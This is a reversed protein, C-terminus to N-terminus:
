APSAPQGAIQREMDAAEAEIERCLAETDILTVRGAALDAESRAISAAWGEPLASPPNPAQDM